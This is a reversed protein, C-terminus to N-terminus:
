ALFRWFDFKFAFYILFIIITLTLADLFIESKMFNPLKDTFKNYLKYLTYGFIGGFANLIIDDVDCTRGISIQAFEIACSTIISLLLTVYFKNNKIYLTTFLGFPAFLLVNGLVNKYFLRSTINYRFIEKFPVFNNTGYNSDQFTVIYYLLLIYLIFCLMLIEKYLVFKDRNVILYTVRISVIIVTFIFIMPWVDHLMNLFIQAFM